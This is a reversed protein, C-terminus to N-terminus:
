SNQPADSSMLWFEYVGLQKEVRRIVDNALQWGVQVPYYTMFSYAPTQIHLVDEVPRLPNIAYWISTVDVYAASSQRTVPDEVLSRSKLTDQYAMEVIKFTRYDLGEMEAVGNDIVLYKRNDSGVLVNGSIVSSKAQVRFTRFPDQLGGTRNSRPDVLHGMVYLGSDLLRFRNSFMPLLSGVKPLHQRAM